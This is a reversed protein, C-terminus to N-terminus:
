FERRMVRFYKGDKKYHIRDPKRGRNMESCIDELDSHQMASVAGCQSAITALKQISASGAYGEHLLLFYETVIPDSIGGYYDLAVM